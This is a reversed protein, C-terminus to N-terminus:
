VENGIITGTCHGTNDSVQLENIQASMLEAEAKHDAEMSRVQERHQDTATQYKIALEDLLTKRKDAVKLVCLRKLAM